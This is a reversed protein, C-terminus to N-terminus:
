RQERRLIEQYARVAQTPVRELDGDAHPKIKYLGNNWGGPRIFDGM